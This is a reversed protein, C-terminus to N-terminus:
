KVALGSPAAPPTTNSQGAQLPHPYPYATYGPAMTNNFYDRGSRVLNNLAAQNFADYPGLMPPTVGDDSTNNWAYIPESVQGPGIGPQDRCPYGGSGSGDLFRTHTGDEAALVEKNADAFRFRGALSAVRNNPYTAGNLEWNTGNCVQWTSIVSLASVRFYQLTYGNWAKNSGRYINDYIMATGSRLTLGRLMVTSNNTFVNAYMEGSVTGRFSGSDTGHWGPSCNLFTNHRIVFRAGTFGDIVVEVGALATPENFINDEIFFNNATGVSSPRAWSSYGGDTISGEGWGEIAHISGGTATIDFTVHDILGYASFNTIGASGSSAILLRLHHLRFSTEGVTGSVVIVGGSPHNVNKIFTFGSATVFNTASAGIILLGGNAPGTGNPASDTIITNGIGAGTLTLGKSAIVVPTTWTCRGSPVTVTDGAAASNIAAQVDSDSCSAANITAAWAPTTFCLLIVSCLLLLTRNM